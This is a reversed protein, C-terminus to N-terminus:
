PLIITMCYGIEPTHSLSETNKQMVFRAGHYVCNGDTM